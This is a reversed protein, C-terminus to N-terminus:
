YSNNYESIIQHLYFLLAKITTYFLFILLYVHLYQYKAISCSTKHTTNLM